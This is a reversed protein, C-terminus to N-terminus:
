LRILGLIQDAIQVPFEGGRDVRYEFAPAHLDEADTRRSGVKIGEGLTPDSRQALLAQIVEHDASLTVQPVNHLLEHFVEIRLSWM